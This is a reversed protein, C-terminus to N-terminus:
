FDIEDVNLEEGFASELTSTAPADDRLAAIEEDTMKTAKVSWKLANDSQEADFHWTLWYHLPNGGDESKDAIKTHLALALYHPAELEVVTEHKTLPNGDKDKRKLEVPEKFTVHFTTVKEPKDVAPKGREDLVHFEKLRDYDCEVWEFEEAQRGKGVTKWKTVVCVEYNGPTWPKEEGGRKQRGFLAGAPLVRGDNARVELQVETFAADENVTTAPIKFTHIRYLDFSGDEWEDRDNKIQFNGPEWAPKTPDILRGFFSPLAMQFGLYSRKFNVESDTNRLRFAKGSLGALESKYLAPVFSKDSQV